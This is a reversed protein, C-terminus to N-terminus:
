CQNSGLQPTLLQQDWFAVSVNINSPLTTNICNWRLDVGHPLMAYMAAPWSTPLGGTLRNYSLDLAGLFQLGTWTNHLTGTFNNHSATFQWLNTLQQGWARPLSGQLHNNDVQLSSLSTMNGWADPLGGTFHNEQLALTGLYAMASWCEPLTGFLGQNRSVDLFTLQSLAAYSQPLTGTLANGSVWLTSLFSLTSWTTPLPGTFSNNFLRVDTLNVMLSWAEPLSGYFANDYLYVLQLSTLTSLENDPLTGEIANNSLDLHQLSTLTGLAASLSGSLGCEALNMSTVLGDENCALGFWECSTQNEWTWGNSCLSSWTTPGNTAAYFQTLALRQAGKDVTVSAGSSPIGLDHSAVPDTSLLTVAASPGVVLLLRAMIFMAVLLDFRKSTQLGM